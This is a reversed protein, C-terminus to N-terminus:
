KDPYLWIDTYAGLLDGKVNDIYSYGSIIMRHKIPIKRNELVPEIMTTGFKMLDKHTPYLLIEGDLYLAYVSGIEVWDDDEIVFLCINFANRFVIPSQGENEIIIIVLEKQRFTNLEKPASIRLDSNIKSRALYM